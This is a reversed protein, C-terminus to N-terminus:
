QLRHRRTNTAISLKEEDGDRFYTLARMPDFVPSRSNVQIPTLLIVAATASVIAAALRSPQRSVYAVGAAAPIGLLLLTAPVYRRCSISPMLILWIAIAVATSITIASLPTSLGRESRPILFFLPIFALILPSLTGLQGWYRGYTLAFPYTLVLRVVTSSSLWQSAALGTSDPGFPAHFIVINKLMFPLLGLVLFLGFWVSVLLMRIARQFLPKVALARLEAFAALIDHWHILLMIGPLLPVVYSIKAVIAFACFLGSMAVRNHHRDPSWSSIAFWVAIFAPGIAFTDTKGGGWLVVAASSTVAMIVALFAARSSLRCLRAVSYLGLLVPLYNVWDYLRASTGPAGLLMLSANLIEGTMIVWSFDEYGPLKGVHGSFAILKSAALYFASADVDVPRGMTSLGFVYFGIALIIILRWPWPTQLWIRYPRAGAQRLEHRQPWLLFPCLIAGALVLGLVIAFKFVGGAGLLIFLGALLGQGLFYSAVLHLVAPLTAADRCFLRMALLGYGTCAAALLIIPYTVYILTMM